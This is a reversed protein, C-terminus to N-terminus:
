TEALQHSSQPFRFVERMQYEQGQELKVTEYLIISDVGFSARAPAVDEKTTAQDQKLLELLAETEVASSSQTVRAITVHPTFAKELDRKKLDRLFGGEKLAATVRGALACLQKSGDDEVLPVFLVRPPPPKQTPKRTHRFTCTIGELQLDFSTMQEAQARLAACMGPLASEPQAGIYQLTVHFDAAPVWKISSGGAAAHTPAPLSPLRSCANARVGDVFARAEASLTVGVFLRM